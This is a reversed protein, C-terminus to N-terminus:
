IPMRMIEQYAAIVQDRVAVVTELSAEAAAVATVVDVLEAKGQVQAAMQTEAAKSASMTDQLAGKLMDAFASGGVGGAAGGGSVGSTNQASAYAKAAALPTIM